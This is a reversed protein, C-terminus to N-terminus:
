IAIATHLANALLPIITGLSIATDPHSLIPTVLSKLGVIVVTPIGTNSIPLSATSLIWPCFM